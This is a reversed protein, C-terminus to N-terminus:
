IAYNYAKFGMSQYLKGAVANIARVTIIKAGDDFADQVAQKCITKAFGWRRMEPVTAVFELSAIGNNDIISAVAVPVSQNFLIYCKMIGDKCLPYHHVPHMDSYGNALVGNAIKAWAAFEEETQVKIIKESSIHDIEKMDPLLAMYIEDNDNFETQGHVKKRGFVQFFVEDSVTLDLWIPMQLEKMESILVKQEELPINDICVNYIISIGHEDAKPKVYSYCGRDVIEMHEAKGFLSVYYNAGDNIHKIIDRETM